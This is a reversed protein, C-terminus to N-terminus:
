LSGVSGLSCAELPSAEGLFGLLLGALTKSSAKATRSQPESQVDHKPIQNRFESKFYQKSLQKRNDTELNAIFNMKSLIHEVQRNFYRLVDGFFNTNTKHSTRQAKELVIGKSANEKSEKSKKPPKSGPNRPLSARQIGQFAQEKPEKASRSRSNPM